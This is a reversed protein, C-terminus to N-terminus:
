TAFYRSRWALIVGRLPELAVFVFPSVSWGALSHLLAFFAFVSFGVLYTLAFAELYLQRGLEDLGNAYLWRQWALFAFLVGLLSFNVSSAVEGRIGPVTALGAVILIYVGIGIRSRRDARQSAPPAETGFTGYLLMSLIPWRAVEVSPPEKAASPM